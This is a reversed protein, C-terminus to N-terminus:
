AALLSKGIHQESGHRRQVELPSLSVGKRDSSILASHAHRESLASLGYPMEAMADVVTHPHYPPLASPVWHDKKLYLKSCQNTGYRCGPMKGRFSYEYSFKNGETSLPNVDPKVHHFAVM